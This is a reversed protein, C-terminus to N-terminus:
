SCDLPSWAGAVLSPRLLPLRTPFPTPCPESGFNYLAVGGKEFLAPLQIEVNKELNRIALSEATRLADDAKVSIDPVVGTGEWDGHSIPNIPRTDPVGITFHEDIRHRRVMHAAGASTEGVLTARKLLKLDYAFEEAGSFTSSSILVYAPKNALKNGLVPSLTWSQLTSDGSRNYLDDLHTPHEFLYSAMLTVM